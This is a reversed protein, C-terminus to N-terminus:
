SILRAIFIPFFTLTENSLNNIQYSVQYVDSTILMGLSMLCSVMLSPTPTSRKISIMGMVQPVQGEQSAVYFLRVSLIFSDSGL